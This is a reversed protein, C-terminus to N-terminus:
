GAEVREPTKGKSEIDVAQVNAGIGLRWEKPM